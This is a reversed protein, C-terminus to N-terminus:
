EAAAQKSTAEIQKRPDLGAKAALEAIRRLVEDTAIVVTERSHAVTVHHVSEVAFGGRDLLALNAKLCDRHERDNAIAATNKISQFAEARIIRVGVERLAEQVKPNHLVNHAMVKMSGDSSTPTGYRAARAARVESGYGAPGARLEMVFARQKPTLALMCPGLDEVPPVVAIPEASYKRSRHRRKSM